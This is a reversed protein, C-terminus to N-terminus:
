KKLKQDWSFEFSDKSPKGRALNTRVKKGYRYSLQTTSWFSHVAFDFKKWDMGTFAGGASWPIEDLPRMDRAAISHESISMGNFKTSM